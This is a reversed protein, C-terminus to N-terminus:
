KLTALHQKLSIHLGSLVEYLYTFNAVTTSPSGFAGKEITYTYPLADSRERSQGVKGKNRVEYHQTNLLSADLVMKQTKPVVRGPISGLDGPGNAFVRVMIGIDPLSWISHQLWTQAGTGQWPFKLAINPNSPM